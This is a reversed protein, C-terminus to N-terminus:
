KEVKAKQLGLLGFISEVLTNVGLRIVTLLIFSVLIIWFIMLSLHNKM